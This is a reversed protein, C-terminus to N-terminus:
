GRRGAREAAREDGDDDETAAARDVWVGGLAIVHARLRAKDREALEAAKEPNRALWARRRCYPSCFRGRATKPLFEVGCQECHTLTANPKTSTPDVSGAANSRPASESENGSGTPANPAPPMATSGAATAGQASENAAVAIPADPTMGSMSSQRAGGAARPRTLDVARTIDKAWTMPDPAWTTPDSPTRQTKTKTTTM